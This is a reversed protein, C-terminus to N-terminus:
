KTVKNTEYKMFFWLVAVINMTLLTKGYNTIWLILKSTQTLTDVINVWGNHLFLDANSRIGYFIFIQEGAKFDRLAFCEGRDQEKNFETTIQFHVFNLSYVIVKSLVYCTKSTKFHLDHQTFGTLTEYKYKLQKINSKFHRIYIYM